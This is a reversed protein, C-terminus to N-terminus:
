LNGQRRDIEKEKSRRIIEQLRDVADVVSKEFVDSSSKVFHDNGPIELRIECHNNDPSSDPGLFLIVNARIIKQHELKSLKERIFTELENGAKFGLSQIIIDM